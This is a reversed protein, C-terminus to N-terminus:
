HIPCMSKYGCYNCMWGKKPENTTASITAQEIRELLQKRLRNVVNNKTHGNAWLTRKGNPQADGGVYHIGARVQKLGPYESVLLVAYSELQAQHMSLPKHAGTKHDLVLASKGQTLFLVDVAGRFLGSNNFFKTKNFDRDIALKQEVITKTVGLQKKFLATRELFEKVAPLFTRVEEELTYTLDYSELVRLLVRDLPVDQLAYELVKHVVTGVIQTEPPPDTMKEKEKYRLNFSFPCTIAATIKSVSWPILSLAEESIKYM